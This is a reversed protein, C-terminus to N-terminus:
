KALIVCARGALEFQKSALLASDRDFFSEVLKGDVYLEFM